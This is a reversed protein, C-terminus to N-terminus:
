KLADESLIQELLPRMQPNATVLKKIFEERGEIKTVKTDTSITLTFESGVLAKFFDALPNGVAEPKTSDYSSRNGGIDIDMMVGEIRQKIVWSKDAEQKLPTWRFIFTQKQKQNVDNGIVKMQQETDTTMTQYFTRDKEFKWRLLASAPEAAPPGSPK